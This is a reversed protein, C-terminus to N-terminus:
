GWTEREGEKERESLGQWKNQKIPGEPQPYSATAPDPGRSSTSTKPCSSKMQMKHYNFKMFIDPRCRLLALPLYVCRKNGSIFAPDQPGGNYSLQEQEKKERVAQVEGVGNRKTANKEAQGAKTAHAEYNNQLTRM